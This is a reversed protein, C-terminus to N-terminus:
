RRGVYHFVGSNFEKETVEIEYTNLAVNSGIDYDAESEWELLSIQGTKWGKLFDSIGNYSVVGEIDTEDVFYLGTGKERTYVCGYVFDNEGRVTSLPRWIDATRLLYHFPEYADNEARTRLLLVRTPESEDDEGGSPYLQTINDWKNITKLLIKQGGSRAKLPRLFTSSSAQTSSGIEIDRSISNLSYDYGYARRFENLLQPTSIDGVQAEVTTAYLAKVTRYRQENYDNGVFMPCDSFMFDGDYGYGYISQERDQPTLNKPFYHANWTVFGKLSTELVDTYGTHVSLNNYMSGDPLQCNGVEDDDSFLALWGLFPQEKFNYCFIDFMIGFTQERKTPRVIFSEDGFLARLATLQDAYSMSGSYFTRGAVYVAQIGYNKNIRNYVSEHPIGMSDTMTFPADSYIYYRNPNFTINSARFNQFQLLTNYYRVATDEYDTPNSPVSRNMTPLSWQMYVKVSRCSPATTFKKECRVRAPVSTDGEPFPIVPRDITENVVSIEEETFVGCVGSATRQNHMYKPSTGVSNYSQGFVIKEFKVSKDLWLGSSSPIAAHVVDMADGTGSVEYGAQQLIEYLTGVRRYAVYPKWWANQNYMGADLALLYNKAEEGSIMADTLYPDYLHINGSEALEFYLSEPSIKLWCKATNQVTDIEDVNLVAQMNRKGISVNCSIGNQLTLNYIDSLNFARLLKDTIPLEFDTSWTNGDSFFLSTYDNEPLQFMLDDIKLVAKM